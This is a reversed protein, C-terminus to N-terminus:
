TAYFSPQENFLLFHDPLRRHLPPPRYGPGGDGKVKNLVSIVTGIVQNYYAVLLSSLPVNANNRFNSSNAKSSDFM